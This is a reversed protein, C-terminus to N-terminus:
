KTIYILKFYYGQRTKKLAFVRLHEKAINLVILLWM